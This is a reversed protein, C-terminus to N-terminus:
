IALWRAEAELREGYAPLQDLQLRVLMIIWRRRDRGALEQLDLHHATSDADDTKEIGMADLTMSRKNLSLYHAPSSMVAEFHSAYARLDLAAVAEGLDHLTRQLEQELAADGPHLRLKARVEDQTQALHQKRSSLEELRDKVRASLSGLFRNALLDRTEALSAGLQSFTHDTFFVAKQPVDRRVVGQAESMGFFDKEWRRVGMLAYVHQPKTADQHWTRVATSRALAQPIDEASAFLAHVLPDQAFAQPTIDIPDSLQSALDQCYAWAQAISNAYQGPFGRIQRLRPEVQDVCWAVRAASAADIRPGFAGPFWRQLLNRQTM